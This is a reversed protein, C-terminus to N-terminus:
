RLLKTVLRLRRRRTSRERTACRRADSIRRRDSTSSRAAVLRGAHDHGRGFVARGAGPCALIMGEGLHEFSDPLHSINALLLLEMCRSVRPRGREVALALAAAAKSWRTAPYRVWRASVGSRRVATSSASGSKASAWQM